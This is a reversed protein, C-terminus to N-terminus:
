FRVPVILDSKELANGISEKEKSKGQWIVAGLAIFIIIIIIPLLKNM